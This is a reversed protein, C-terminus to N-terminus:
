PQLRLLLKDLSYNFIAKIDEYTQRFADVDLPVNEEVGWSIGNMGPEYKSFQEKTYMFNNMMVVRCGCLRAVETMASCTDYCYMVSCTNLYEALKEQDRAFARDLTFLGETYASHTDIGKGVFKCKNNRNTGRKVRFVQTNIIPLFLIDKTEKESFLQSFYILIDNKDFETPGPVGNAGMVGPKNLIYRIVTEAGTPNGHYIEPYIAIFDKTAPYRNIYVEVGRALLHGFLGWMVKIGGSVFDYEPSVIVIPKM